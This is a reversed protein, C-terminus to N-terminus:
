CSLLARLTLKTIKTVHHLTKYMFVVDVCQCRRMALRGVVPAVARMRKPPGDLGQPADRQAVAGIEKGFAGPMGVGQGFQDVL